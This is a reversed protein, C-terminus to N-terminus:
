HTKTGWKYMKKKNTNAYYWSPTVVASQGATEDHEQHNGNNLVISVVSVPRFRRDVPSGTSRRNPKSTM